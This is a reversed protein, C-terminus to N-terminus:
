EWLQKPCAKKITCIKLNFITFSWTKHQLKERTFTQSIPTQWKNCENYIYLIGSEIPTDFSCYENWWRSM